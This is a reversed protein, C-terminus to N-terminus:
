SVRKKIENIVMRLREAENRFVDHAKELDRAENADGHAVVDIQEAGTTWVMRMSHRYDDELQKLLAEITM